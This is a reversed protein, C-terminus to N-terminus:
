PCSAYLLLTHSVQKPMLFSRKSLCFQCNQQFANKVVSHSRGLSVPLDLCGRYIADLFVTSKRIINYKTSNLHVKCDYNKPFSTYCKFTIYAWIGVLKILIFNRSNFTKNSIIIWLFYIVIMSIELKKGYFILKLNTNYIIKLVHWKSNVILLLIVFCILIQPVCLVVFIFVFRHLKQLPFCNGKYDSIFEGPDDLIFLRWYFCRFKKNSFLWERGLSLIMGFWNKSSSKRFMKMPNPWWLQSTTSNKM